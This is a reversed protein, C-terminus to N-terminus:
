VIVIKLNVVTKLLGFQYSFLDSHLGQSLNLQPFLSFYLSKLLFLKMEVVFFLENCFFLTKGPRLYRNKYRHWSSNKQQQKFYFSNKAIIFASFIKIIYKIIYLSVLKGGNQCYFSKTFFSNKPVTLTLAAADDCLLSSQMM